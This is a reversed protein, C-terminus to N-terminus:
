IKDLKKSLKNRDPSISDKLKSLKDSDKGTTVYGGVSHSEPRKRRKPYDIKKLHEPIRKTPM